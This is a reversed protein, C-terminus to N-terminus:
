HAHLLVFHFNDFHEGVVVAVVREETVVVVLAETQVAQAAEEMEPQTRRGALTKVM